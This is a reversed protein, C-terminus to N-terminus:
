ALLKPLNRTIRACIDTPITGLFHDWYSPTSYLLASGYQYFLLRCVPGLPGMGVVAMPGTACKLLNVGFQLEKSNKPTYAFKVIDAGVIRAYKERKLLDRTKITDEEFYHASAIVKVYEKKAASILRMVSAHTDPNEIDDMDIDIAAAGKMMSRMIAFREDARLREVPKVKDYSRYTLIVPSLKCESLDIDAIQDRPFSDLRLEITIDKSDHLSWNPDGFVSCVLSPLVSNAKTMAEKYLEWLRSGTSGAYEQHYRFWVMFPSDPTPTVYFLRGAGEEKNCEVQPLCRTSFKFKLNDCKAPACHGASTKGIDDNIADGDVIREPGACYNNILDHEHGPIVLIPVTNFEKYTDPM